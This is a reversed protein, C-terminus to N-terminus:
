TKNVTLLERGAQIQGLGKIQDLRSLCSEIFAPDKQARQEAAPSLPPFDADSIASQKATMEKVVSNINPSAINTLNIAIAFLAIKPSSVYNLNIEIFPNQCATAESQYCPTRGSNAPPFLFLVYSPAFPL